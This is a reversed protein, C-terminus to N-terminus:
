PGGNSESVIMEFDAPTLAKCGGQLFVWWMARNGSFFKLQSVFLDFSPVLPFSQYREFEAVVKPMPNYAKPPDFEGMRNTWPKVKSVEFSGVFGRKKKQKSSLYVVCMDGASIRNVHATHDFFPWGLKSVRWSLFEDAAIRIGAGNEVDLCTVVYHKLVFWGVISQM